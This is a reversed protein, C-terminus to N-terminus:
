DVSWFGDHLGIASVREPESLARLSELCLMEAIRQGDSIESDAQRSKECFDLSCNDVNYDDIAIHLHGGVCSFKYVEAILRAAERVLSTDLRPAGEEQYCTYCM